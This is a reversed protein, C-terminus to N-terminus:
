PTLDGMRPSRTAVLMRLPPMAKYTPPLFGGAVHAHFLPGTLIFDRGPGLRESSEKTEAETFPPSFPPPSDLRGGLIVPIDRSMALFTAPSFNTGNRRM